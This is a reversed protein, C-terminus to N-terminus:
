GRTGHHGCEIPQADPVSNTVPQANSSSYTITHNGSNANGDADPGSQFWFQGLWM